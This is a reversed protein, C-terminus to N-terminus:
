SRGPPIPILSPAHPTEPILYTVISTFNSKCYEAINEQRGQGLLADRKAEM